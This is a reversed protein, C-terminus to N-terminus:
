LGQKKHALKSPVRRNQAQVLTTVWKCNSPEYNGSNDTRSITLSDEYGNELSWNYFNIFGNEDDNWEDCVSAGRKGTIKLVLTNIIKADVECQMGLSIFEIIRYDM